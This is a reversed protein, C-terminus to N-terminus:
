SPHARPALAELYLAEMVAAHREPAFLDVARQRGAEGMARREGPSALLREIAAAVDDPRHGDVLLGTEGHLVADPLAGVRAAVVPRAAAMAELAARCSEDSGAGLLAFVDLSALVAPLDADRYGAFIVQRELRLRAVLDGLADRREGKGVLVLRAQPRWALLRRFAELLTEHGRGAALRSVCGILPAEGVGLEERIKAAGATDSAFRAVDVVGDVRHIREPAVGAELLRQEIVRSVPVLADSHRYLARDPWRPRVARESHFSRVLAAKGRGWWGLWHDHSHHAHVVDVKERAVLARLRRADGVIALPGSKVDLSLEALPEVGAERAKAEFRDGGAVALLARHERARLALVLRLVPEASGTWWRNAVVHLVTLRRPIM